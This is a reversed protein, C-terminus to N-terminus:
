RYKHRLKATFLCVQNEPDNFAFATGTFWENVSLTNKGLFDKGIFDKDWVVFKLNIPGLRQLLSMYIPFDFTAEQPNYVPNLNRACVPTKFEKGLTSVVVFSYIRSRLPSSLPPSPLDTLLLSLALHLRARV